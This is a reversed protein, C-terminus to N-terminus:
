TETGGRMRVGDKLAAPGGGGKGGVGGGGEVGVGSVDEGGRVM